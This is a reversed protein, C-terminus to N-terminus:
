EARLHVHELSPCNLVTAGVSSRRLMMSTVLMWKNNRSDYREVTNMSSSGDNGGLAYLYGEAQVVEHTSRRSNMSAVTVWATRRPDYTEVSCMCLSGDNGGVVYILGNLAAVGCSSRRNIMPTVQIWKGERPDLREVSSLYNAGDYGGIAYLCEDLVALRTYRRRTEMAVMSSWTGILPDYCELSNLCSAGDYGGAVYLLGNLCSIGLCSRKSGMNCIPQWANKLSSFCEASALDKTGDYGGVVYIHRELGAVGARSRRHLTPLLPAWRDTCINYYECESHITFLSGGGIAFLYPKLGEPRRYTTRMGIMCSRHEPMLHYKMAEILLDKTKLCDQILPEEGVTKLLFERRILPLRVHQLLQSLLQKRSDIDHKVWSIVACYIEEESTANLENSSILEQVEILSLLLFEETLAVEQFNQLAYKHSKQHLEECSHANAFSRIGLCNSPHLQRLLFRCCAERVSSVQLLSAAPLLSQVNDETILVEGTYAFEVLSSLACSDIEHLTITALNKEAMGSNFMAHFYASCASLVVKHASISQEGVNLTVDCLQGKVRMDQLATFATSHHDSNIHHIQFPRAVSSALTEMMNINTSSLHRRNTPGTYYQGNKILKSTRHFLPCYVPLSIVNVHRSEM